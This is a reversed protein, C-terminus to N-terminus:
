ILQDLKKICMVDNNKLSNVYSSVEYTNLYNSDVPLMLLKLDDLSTSQDLWKDSDAGKIIVPMRHHIPSMVDNAETTLISFGYEKTGDDLHQVQWIGAMTILGFGERHFLFPKKVTSRQWEYFGNCVLLCRRKEFSEKYTIKEFVTESRANIFKYGDNQNKAYDPIFRWKLYGSRFADDHKIISLMEQSPGVNYKPIFDDINLQNIDYEEALIQKIMKASLTLIVRGCM